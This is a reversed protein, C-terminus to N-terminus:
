RIGLGLDLRVASDLDRGWSACTADADCNTQSEARIDKECSPNLLATGLEINSGLKARVAELNCSHKGKSSM